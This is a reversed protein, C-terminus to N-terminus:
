KLPAIRQQYTGVAEGSAIVHGSMAALLPDREAGPPVDLLTDLAFVQFHYHHPPDGVPPRPGLYGVSGRSTRGQLVGEPDTLREQEQLGAPLHHHDAPINWALWHVFPTIPRADPDEMIVVYSRAGKIPTWAIRPSAGDYYESHRPQIM